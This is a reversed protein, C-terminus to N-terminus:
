RLPQERAVRARATVRQQLWPDPVLGVVDATKGKTKKV